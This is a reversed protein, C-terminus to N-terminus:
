NQIIGGGQAFIEFMSVGSLRGPRHLGVRGSGKQSHAEHDRCRPRIREWGCIQVVLPLHAHKGGAPVKTIYSYKAKVGPDVFFFKSRRPLFSGKKTPRPFEVQGGFQEKEELFDHPLLHYLDFDFESMKHQATGKNEIWAILEIVWYDEHKGIFNIDASTEIHPYQEQRLVFKFYAWIGGVFLALATLASQAFEAWNRFLESQAVPTMVAVVPAGSQQAEASGLAVM